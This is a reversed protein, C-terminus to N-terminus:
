GRDAAHLIMNSLEQPHSLMPWHDTPLEYYHWDARLSAERAYPEFRRDREHTCFVYTKPLSAPLSVDIVHDFTRASQPMTAAFETTLDHAAVLQPDPHFRNMRIMGDVAESWAAQHMAAAATPTVPLLPAHADIYVMSVIRQAVRAWVGTIVRGGYSHGVLTIDSLDKSEIVDVVDDIHDELTIEASSEDARRGHGRLSVTLVPRGSAGLHPLVPSWSWEGVWAGHVLVMARHRQEATLSLSKM